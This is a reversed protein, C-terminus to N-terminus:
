TPSRIGSLATYVTSPITRTCTTKPQPRWRRGRSVRSADGVAPGSTKFYQEVDLDLILRMVQAQWVGVAFQHAMYRPPRGEHYSALILGRQAMDELRRAAEAVPIGRLAVVRAEEPRLTLHL